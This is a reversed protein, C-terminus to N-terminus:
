AGERFKKEEEKTMIQLRSKTNTITSEFVKVLKKNKTVIETKSLVELLELITLKIFDSESLLKFQQTKLESSKTAILEAYKSEFISDAVFQIHTEQKALIQELSVLKDIKNELEKFKNKNIIVYGFM